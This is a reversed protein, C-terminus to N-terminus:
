FNLFHTTIDLHITLFRLNLHIIYNTTFAVNFIVFIFKSAVVALAYNLIYIIYDINFSNQILMNNEKWTSVVYM